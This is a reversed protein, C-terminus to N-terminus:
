KVILQHASLTQPSSALILLRDMQIFYLCHQQNILFKILKKKMQLIEQETRVERHSTRFSGARHTNIM